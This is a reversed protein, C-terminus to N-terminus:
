RLLGLSDWLTAAEGLEWPEDVPLRIEAGAGDVPLRRPNGPPSWLVLLGDREEVLRCSNARWIRGYRIERLAIDM